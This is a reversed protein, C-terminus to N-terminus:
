SAQRSESDRQLLAGKPGFTRFRRRAIGRKPPFEGNKCREIFAKHKPLLNLTAKETGGNQESLSHVVTLPWQNAPAPFDFAAGAADADPQESGCV